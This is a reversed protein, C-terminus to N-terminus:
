KIFSMDNVEPPVQEETQSIEIDVGFVTNGKTHPLTANETSPLNDGHLEGMVLKYWSEHCEQVVKLTFETDKYNGDFLFSNPQKGTPIKYVEFWRKLNELVGPMKEYVDKIDNLEAAFPDNTDIVVVKWDLEGDDVLALSGLIKVPKVTGTPSVHRGIDIVDLPDNDGFIDQNVLSSSELPSEWTQPFAGYNHPAGHNPYINNLYRLKGKKTDQVIPNAKIDKSIEYKANVWRPIEVVMNAIRKGKDLGLPVDHFFSGIKGDNLRLYTRFNFSNRTGSVVSSLTRSLKLM